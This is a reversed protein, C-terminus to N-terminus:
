KNNLFFSVGLNISSTNLGFSFSNYNPSSQNQEGTTFTVLNSSLELALWNKPFYALGASLSTTYETYKTENESSSGQSSNYLSNVTRWNAGSILEGFVSFKDGFPLYKRAFLSAGFADSEVINEEITSSSSTSSVTKRTTQGTTFSLVTGIVWNNGLSYGFRPNFLFENSDYNTATVNPLMGLLHESNSSNFNVNGGLMISGKEIQANAAFAFLQFALVGLLFKKM